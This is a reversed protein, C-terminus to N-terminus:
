RVRCARAFDQLQGRTLGRHFVGDLRRALRGNEFFLVTPFVEVDYRRVVPDDDEAVLRAYCPDGAAAQALYEPLFAQSYPCWSAYVLVMLKDRSALAADLDEIGGLLICADPAAAAAANRPKGGLSKLADRISM